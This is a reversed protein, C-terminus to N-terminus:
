REFNLLNVGIIQHQRNGLTASILVSPIKNNVLCIDADNLTANPFTLATARLDTNMLVLTNAITIGYIVSEGLVQSDTIKLMKM